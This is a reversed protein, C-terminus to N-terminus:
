EQEGLNEIAAAIAKSVGARPKERRGELTELRELTAADLGDLEATVQDVNGDLILNLEDDTFAVQGQSQLDITSVPVDAAERKRKAEDQRQLWTPTLKDDKTAEHEEAYGSKVLLDAEHQDITNTPEWVVGGAQPENPHLASVIISTLLKYRTNKM